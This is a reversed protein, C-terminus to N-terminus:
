RSNGLGLDPLVVSKGQSMGGLRFFKPGDLTMRSELWNMKSEKFLVMTYSGTDVALRLPHGQITGEVIIRSSSVAMPIMHELQQRVGFRLKRDAFDITFSWSQAEGSSGGSALAAQHRLFDLGLIGDVGLGSLDAEYCHLSASVSGLRLMAINIQKAKTIRGLAVVRLEGPLKELGLAKVAKRDVLSSSAATDIMFRLRNTSGISAEVVIMHGQFRFPIESGPQRALGLAAHSLFASVLFAAHSISRTKM